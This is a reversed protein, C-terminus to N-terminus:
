KSICKKSMKKYTETGTSSLGHHPDYKHRISETLPIKACHGNAKRGILTYLPCMYNKGEDGKNDM